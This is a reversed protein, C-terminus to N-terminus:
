SAKRDHAYHDLDTEFILWDRGVKRGVLRGSELAKRITRVDRGVLRAAEASTMGEGSVALRVAGVVTTGRAARRRNEEREAAEQLADLVVVMDSNVDVGRKRGELVGLTLLRIAAGAVRPPVVM